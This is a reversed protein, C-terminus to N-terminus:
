WGERLRAYSPGKDEGESLWKEKVEERIKKKGGKRKRWFVGEMRCLRLDRVGERGGDSWLVVLLCVKEM